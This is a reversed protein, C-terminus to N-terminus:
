IGLQADKYVPSEIRHRSVSRGFPIGFPEVASKHHAVGGASADHTLIGVRRQRYQLLIALQRFIPLRLPPVGVLPGSEELISAGAIHHQNGFVVVAVAQPVARLLWLPVAHCRARTAVDHLFEGGGYAHLTHTHTEIIRQGFPGVRAVDPHFIGIREDAVIDIAVHHRLEFLQDRAVAGREDEGVAVPLVRGLLETRGLQYVPIVAGHAVRGYDVVAPTAASLM